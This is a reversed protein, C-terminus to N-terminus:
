NLTRALRVRYEKIRPDDNGMVKFTDLIAKHIAGDNWERNGVVLELLADLATDFDGELVSLV